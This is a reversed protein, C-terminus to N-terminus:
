TELREITIHTKIPVFDDLMLAYKGHDAVDGAISAFGLKPYLDKVMSNKPTPHYEGIIRRVGLRRAEESVVNLTAQEVQRGLVRCSMLWTDLLVADAVRKGIVISIIGNDGFRDFLRLYIGFAEPDDMVALVEDESYRKTTLNFQNTKNILQVTRQLNVKDFNRWQLRMQLSRLYGEMDTAGSQLESRERNDFYQQTRERDEPTIALSEFYGADAICRPVLAPDEPLEPVAVMPLEQRVLGREFPNDDVFVLSELGINLEAAVRRLNTVKDDWNAVFSAVQKRTLVMEPHREFAHMAVHEDNKSCVALIVGRESLEVAYSQLSVFAEGLASGQGLVIGELGDDGVVGGWITNDLDLVLCKSSLGLQAGLVRAVAEGYCPVASLKIEQKSRHWLAVDHWVDLGDQRARRDVAVLHAGGADAAAQLHLNLQDLFHARSGPLRHENSGMLDHWIPLATQQLVTCSFAKKALAWCEQISALVQELAGAARPEDLGPRLGQTLHYADLAFLVVHPRFRHLDSESNLLEQRYQGYQAEYTLVHLGRRLAAVRLGAHLHTVTSSGLIAVRLSKVPPPAAGAGYHKVLVQDLTNTQVFDLDHKAIAVLEAWAPPVEAVLLSRARARFDTCEPLWYLTTDRM